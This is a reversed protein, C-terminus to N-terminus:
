NQIQKKYLLIKSGTLLDVNQMSGAKPTVTSDSIIDIEFGSGGPIKNISHYVYHGGDSTNGGHVVAGMIDYKIIYTPSLKIELVPTIAVKDMIKVGNMRERKLAIIFYPPMPYELMTQKYIIYKENKKAEQTVQIENIVREGDVCSQVSYLNNQGSHISCEFIIDAFGKTREIKRYKSNSYEHVGLAGVEFSFLELIVHVNIDNIAIDILANVIIRIFENPDSQRRPALGTGKGGEGNFFSSCSVINVNSGGESVITKFATKLINLKKINLKETDSPVREKPVREIFEYELIFNKFETISLLMQISANMFCTNGNNWLGVRRLLPDQRFSYTPNNNPDYKSVLYIINQKFVKFNNSYIFKKPMWDIIYKSFSTRTGENNWEVSGLEARMKELEAWMKELDQPYKEIEYEIDGFDIKNAADALIVMYRKMKNRGIKIKVSESMNQSIIYCINEISRFYVNEQEKSLPISAMKSYDVYLQIGKIECIQEITKNLDITLKSINTITQNILYKTLM